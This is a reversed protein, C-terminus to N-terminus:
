KWIPSWNKREELPMLLIYDEPKSKVRKRLKREGDIELSLFTEKLQMDLMAEYQASEHKELECFSVRSRIEAKYPDEQKYEDNNWRSKVFVGYDIYYTNSFNSRTTKVGIFLEKLDLYFWTKYKCFGNRKFCIALIKKFEEKNM